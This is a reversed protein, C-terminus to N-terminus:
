KEEEEEGEGQTKSIKNKRKLIELENRRVRKGAGFSGAPVFGSCGAGPRLKFETCCIRNRELGSGKERDRLQHPM